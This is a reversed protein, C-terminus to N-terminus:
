ETKEELQEGKRSSKRRPRRRVPEVEAAAPEGLMDYTEEIVTWSLPGIITSAKDEPVIDSAPAVPKAEAEPYIEIWGDLPIGDILYKVNEAVQQDEVVFDANATGSEDLVRRIRYRRM